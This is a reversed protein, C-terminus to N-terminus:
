LWIQINVVAKLLPGWYSIERFDTLQSGLQEMRISPRVSM